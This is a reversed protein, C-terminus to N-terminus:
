GGAPVIHLRDAGIRALGLCFARREMLFSSWQESFAETPECSRGAPPGNPASVLEATNPVYRTVMCTVRKLEGTGTCTLFCLM